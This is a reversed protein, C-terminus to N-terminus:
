DADCVSGMRSGDTGIVSDTGSKDNTCVKTVPVTDSASLHEMYDNAGTFALHKRLRIIDDPLATTAWSRLTANHQILQDLHHERESLTTHIRRQKQQLTTLLQQNAKVGEQLATLQTQQHMLQQEAQEARAKVLILQNHQMYIFAILIGTCLLAILAKIVVNM